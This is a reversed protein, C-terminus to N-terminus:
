ENVLDIQPTHILVYAFTSDPQAQALIETVM